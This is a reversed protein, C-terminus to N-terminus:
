SLEGYYLLGDIFKKINVTGRSDGEGRIYDMESKVQEFSYLSNSYETFIENMYDEVGLSALNVLGTAATRRIRQEMTKPHETFNSCLEQVTLDSMNQETDMLYKVVDIIDQSGNEGLIGIRQMVRKIETIRDRTRSSRKNTGSNFLSEIQRLKENMEMKEIVKNIVTQVEIADIPKNIFYEIGVKYAKSVMDKSTVQSIMIFQINPRKLKLKEVLNIGDLGPMLLDVLVIDPNLNDIEGEALLGDKASGIVEGLEKDEIIQELIRIINENDDVIFIKM